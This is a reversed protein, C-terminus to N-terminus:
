TEWNFPESPFLFATKNPWRLLFTISTQLYSVMHASPGIIALSRGLFLGVQSRAIARSTMPRDVILLSSSLRLKTSGGLTPIFDHRVKGSM